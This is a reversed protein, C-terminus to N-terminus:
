RLRAVARDVARALRGTAGSVPLSAASAVAQRYWAIWAAVVQRETEEAAARDPAAAVIRAGQERELRLRAASAEELLRVVALADAQTAAALLHVTTAVAVTVNAMEAPSTMEPRDLNTHYYRDPFHWDLLAPVGAALFVAHDSGGEYPNTRVVWGNDRARRRCIALHLDNLLHGKLSEAKVSGGGGWETHPDSPRDWVATPDPQKEILFSGGTKTVDEGTMDLSIMARSEAARAPLARLYERSARIEDGWVFTITRGPAALHRSAIGEALLRAIELQTACGSGNDNAGPEQVHAVVVIRESPRTRGPIEAILMRGPSAAFRTEVEVRVPTASAALAKLRAAARPSAKFGFSRLGEDYPISGWSLVEPTEDPRALRSVATSVIGAAGRARVAQEFLRRLDADGVVVAGKVDRGEYDAPTGGNGVYVLPATLGGPPTSFSNIALAVCDGTQFVLPAQSPGLDARVVDWGNGGNPYEALWQRPAGAGVAPGPEALPRVGADAFGADALGAKIWDLSLNFGTNGAVRWYGDMFNVLAMAREPRVAASVVRYTKEATPPLRAAGAGTQVAAPRAPVFAGTALLVAAAFAAHPWFPRRRRTELRVSM